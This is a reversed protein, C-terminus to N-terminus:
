MGGEWFKEPPVHNRRAVLRNWRMYGFPAKSLDPTGDDFFNGMLLGCGDGDVDDAMEIDFLTTKEFHWKHWDLSHYICEFTHWTPKLKELIKGNFENTPGYFALGFVGEPKLINAVYETLFVDSHGYFNFSNICIIADFYDNAYPLKHVDAKIPIVKDQIGAECIRKWNDTADNWLDTAYVTVGFEKALFISSIAKGCGMDMVRMGPKFDIVRSLSEALLVPNSGMANEEIWKIDYKATLPYKSTILAKTRDDYQMIITWEKKSFNHKYTQFSVEM